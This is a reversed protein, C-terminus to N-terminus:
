LWWTALDAVSHAVAPAAASGTALRLGAFVLGVALDLPVVHWGYLPVHLLAFAVTPLDTPLDTPLNPTASAHQRDHPSCRAAEWRATQVPGSRASM